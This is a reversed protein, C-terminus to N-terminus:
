GAASAGLTLQREKIKEPDDWDKLSLFGCAVGGHGPPVRRWGRFLSHGGEGFVPRLRLRDCWCARHDRM